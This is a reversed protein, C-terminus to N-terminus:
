GACWIDQRAMEPTGSQPQQLGSVYTSARLVLMRGSGGLLTVESTDVTDSSGALRESSSAGCSAACPGLCPRSGPLAEDLCSLCIASAAASRAARSAPSESWLLAPVLRSAVRWPCCCSLEQTSLSASLHAIANM